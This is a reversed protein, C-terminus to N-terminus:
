FADWFKLGWVVTVYLIYIDIHLPYVHIYIHIYIYIHLISSRHFFPSDTCGLVGIMMEYACTYMHVHVGLATYVNVCAAFGYIYLYLVNVCMCASIFWVFPWFSGLIAQMTMLAQIVDQNASSTKSSITM